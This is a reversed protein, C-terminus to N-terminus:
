QKPEDTKEGAYYNEAPMDEYIVRVGEAASMGSKAIVAIIEEAVQKKLEPSRGAKLQIRVFPM